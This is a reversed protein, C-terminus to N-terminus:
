KKSKRRKREQHNAIYKYCAKLIAKAAEPTDEHIHSVALELELESEIRRQRRIQDQISALEVELESSTLADHDDKKKPTM